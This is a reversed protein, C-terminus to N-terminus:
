CMASAERDALVEVLLVGGEPGEVTLYATTGDVEKAFCGPVETGRWGAAPAAEDYYRLVQEASGGYRHGAGAVVRRDDDDCGRYRGQPRAGEPATGLM